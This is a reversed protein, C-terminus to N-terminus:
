YEFELTLPIGQLRKVALKCYDPSIDIGITKRGRKKAVALTTGSGCFPDLVVGPEFGANCGCDSYGKDIPTAGAKKQNPQGYLTEGQYSVHENPRKRWITEFDYIRGRAKGCKKCIMSPCGSLIPTECLKEPFTAFNRIEKHAPSPQTNIEWVDRM